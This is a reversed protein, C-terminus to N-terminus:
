CGTNFNVNRKVWTLDSVPRWGQELDMRFYLHKTIVEGVWVQIGTMAQALGFLLRGPEELCCEEWYEFVVLLLSKKFVPSRRSSVAGM